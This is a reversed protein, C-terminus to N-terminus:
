PAHGARPDTFWLIGSSPPEYHEGLDAGEDAWLSSPVLGPKYFLISTSAWSRAHPRSGRDWDWAPGRTVTM